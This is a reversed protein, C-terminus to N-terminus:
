ARRRAGRWCGSSARWRLELAPRLGGGELHARSERVAAAAAAGPLLRQQSPQQLLRVGDLTVALWVLLPEEYLTHGGSCHMVLPLREPVLPPACLEGDGAGQEAGAELWMSLQLEGAAPGGTAEGRRPRLPLWLPGVRQGLESPLQSLLMEAEGLHDDASLLDCDFVSLKVLLPDAGGAGEAAEQERPPPPPAPASCPQTHRPTSPAKHDAGAGATTHRAGRVQLDASSFRFSEEWEPQLSKFVVRTAACSRGVEVLCYPDSLGNADAARLGRAGHLHLHLALSPPPLGTHRSAPALPAPTAALLPPPPPQEQQQQTHANHTVGGEASKEAPSDEDDHAGSACLCRALRQM